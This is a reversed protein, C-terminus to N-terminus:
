KKFKEILRDMEKVWDKVERKGEKQSALITELIYEDPHAETMPRQNWGPDVISVGPKSPAVKKLPVRFIERIVEEWNTREFAKESFNTTTLYNFFLNDAQGALLNPLMRLVIEMAYEPNDLFFSKMSLHLAGEYDVIAGKPLAGDNMMKGLLHLKVSALADSFVLEGLENGTPSTSNEETDTLSFRQAYEKKDGAFENRGEKWSATFLSQKKLFSKLIEATRLNEGFKPEERKLYELYKKYFSDTLESFIIKGFMTRKSDVSIRSDDRGDIETFYGNFGDQVLNRMHTGYGSTENKTEWMKGLAEGLPKDAYGEISVVEAEKGLDSMFRGYFSMWEKTHRVGVSVYPIGGPLFHLNIPSSVYEIKELSQKRAYEEYAYMVTIIKRTKEDLHTLVEEPLGDPYRDRLDRSTINNTGEIRLGAKNTINEAIIEDGEPDTREGKDDTKIASYPGSPIGALELLVQARIVMPSPKEGEFKAKLKETVRFWHDDPLETFGEKM